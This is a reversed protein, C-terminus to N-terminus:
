QSQIQATFIHFIWCSFMKFLGIDLGTAKNLKLDMIPNQVELSTLPEHHYTSTRLLDLIDKHHQGSPVSNLIQSYHTKWLEAIAETGTIENITSAIPTTGKASLKKIETWFSKTDKLLLKRALSDAHARTESARCRWLAQKFTARTVESVQM